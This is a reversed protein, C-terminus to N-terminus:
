LFNLIRDKRVLYLKLLSYKDTIVILQETKLQRITVAGLEAGSTKINRICVRIYIVILPKQSNCAM